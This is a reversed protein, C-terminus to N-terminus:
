NFINNTNGIIETNLTNHVKHLQISDKLLMMLSKTSSFASSEGMDIVDNKAKRLTVKQKLREYSKRLM